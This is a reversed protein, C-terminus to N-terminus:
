KVRRLKQVPDETTQAENCVEEKNFRNIYGSEVRGGPDSNVRRLTSKVRGGQAPSLLITYKNSHWLGDGNLRHEVAIVGNQKLEQIGAKVSAISIGWMNAITKHSPWCEDTRYAYWRLASFCLKATTSIDTRRSFEIPIQLPRALPTSREALLDRHPIPTAAGVGSGACTRV